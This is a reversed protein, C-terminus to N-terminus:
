SSRVPQQGRYFREADTRPDARSEQFRRFRWAGDATGMGLVPVTAGRRDAPGADSIRNRAPIGAHFRWDIRIRQATELRQYPARHHTRVPARDLRRASEEPFYQDADHALIQARP